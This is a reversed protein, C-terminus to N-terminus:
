TLGYLKKTKADTFFGTDHRLRPFQTAKFVALNKSLCQFFSTFYIYFSTFTFFLVISPGKIDVVVLRGLRKYTRRGSLTIQDLM